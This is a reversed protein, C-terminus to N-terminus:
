EAPKNVCAIRVSTPTSCIVEVAKPFYVMDGAEAVMKKGDVELHLTGAVVVAVEPSKLTRTFSGKEWQMHGGVLSTGATLEKVALSAGDNERVLRDEEILSVGACSAVVGEVPSQVVVPEALKATVVRRVLSELADAAPAGAVSEQIIGCVEAILTDTASSGRVPVYSCNEQAVLGPAEFLIEVGQAQAMEVAQQTVICEQPPCLISKHCGQLVKEIDAESIIRKGM